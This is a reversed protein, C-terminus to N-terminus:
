KHGRLRARKQAPHPPVKSMIELMKKRQQPEIIQALQNSFEVIKGSQEKAIAEAALTLSDLKVTNSEFSALHILRRLQQEREDLTKMASNHDRFALRFAEKQDNKLNLKEGFSTLQRHMRAEHMGKSNRKNMQHGQWIFAILTLNLLVLAIVAFFLAKQYNKM